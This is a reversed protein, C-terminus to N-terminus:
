LNDGSKISKTQLYAKADVFKAELDGSPTISVTVHNENEIMEENM